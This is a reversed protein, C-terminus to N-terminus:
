EHRGADSASREFYAEIAATPILRARGVKISQIEGAAILEYLRSRSLGSWEVAEPVRLNLKRAESTVCDRRSKPVDM